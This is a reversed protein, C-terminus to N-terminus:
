EGLRYETMGSTDLRSDMANFAPDEVLVGRLHRLLPKTNILFMM